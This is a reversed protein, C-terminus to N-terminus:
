DGSSKTSSGWAFWGRHGKQVDIRVRVKGDKGKLDKLEVERTRGLSEVESIRDLVNKLEEEFREEGCVERFARMMPVSSAKVNSETDICIINRQDLQELLDARTMVRRAVNLPLSPINHEQFPIDNALDSKIDKKEQNILGQILLFASGARDDSVLAELTVM